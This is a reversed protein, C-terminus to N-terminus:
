GQGDAGGEEAAAADGDALLPHGLAERSAGYARACAVALDRV